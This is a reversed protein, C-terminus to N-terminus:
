PLHQAAVLLGFLVVFLVLTVLAIDAALRMGAPGSRVRRWHLVLAILASTILLSLLVLPSPM